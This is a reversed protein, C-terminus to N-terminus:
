ELEFVRQVIALERSPSRGRKVADALGALAGLRASFLTRKAFEADLPLDYAAVARQFFSWGGHLLVYNFDPAPECLVPGWDIIGSLRGTTPSVLVHEMQFDGHILRPMGRYADPAHPVRDLWMCPDHAHDRIEPVESVWRRLRLLAAGLDVDNPDATGVGAVAAVDAPIAHLRSLVRGIDDALEPNMSVSPDNAGVGPVLDHGTFRYPFRGCPKGWRTIRPIRVIDSIVSAVLVHLREQWEFGDGGDARRPFRFVVRDDVLFTEFEWGEGMPEVSAVALEPFQERVVARVIEATLERDTPPPEYFGISLGTM